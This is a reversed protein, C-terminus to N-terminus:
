NHSKPGHDILDTTRDPGLTQRWFVVAGVIASQRYSAFVGMMYRGADRLFKPIGPEPARNDIEHGNLFAAASVCSNDLRFNGQGVRKPSRRERGAIVL